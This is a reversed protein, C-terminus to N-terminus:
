PIVGGAIEEVEVKLAEGRGLAVRTDRLDVLVPGRGFNQVVVLEAGVTFGLAAVRTTFEKGGKLSRVRVRGGVQISSLSTATGPEGRRVPTGPRVGEQEDRDRHM